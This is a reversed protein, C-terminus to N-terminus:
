FLSCRNHLPSLLSNYIHFYFLSLHSEMARFETDECWRFEDSVQDHTERLLTPEFIGIDWAGAPTDIALYWAIRHEAQYVLLSRQDVERSSSHHPHNLLEGWFVALMSVWQDVWKVDNMAKLM